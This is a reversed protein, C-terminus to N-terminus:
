VPRAAAAVAAPTIQPNVAVAAICAVQEPPLLLLQLLQCLTIPNL